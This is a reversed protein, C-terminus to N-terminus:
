KRAPQTRPQTATGPAADLGLIHPRTRIEPDTGAVRGRSPDAKAPLKFSVPASKGKPGVYASLRPYYEVHVKRWEPPTTKVRRLLRELNGQREWGGFQSVFYWLEVRWIINGKAAHFDRTRMLEVLMTARRGHGRIYLVRRGEMFDDMDRVYKELAAVDDMSFKHRREPPLGLQKRRLAALRLMRADVFELDIGEVVRGGDLKIRLDYTADGPLDQFKFEGTRANCSVPEYSKGTVRSVAGLEVIERPVDVKGTIGGPVPRAVPPDDEVLKVAGLCACGALVVLTAIATRKTSM